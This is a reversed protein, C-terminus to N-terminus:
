FGVCMANYNEFVKSLLLKEKNTAEEVQYGLMVWSQLDLVNNDELVIVPMGYHSVPHNTTITAKIEHRRRNGLIDTYSLIM